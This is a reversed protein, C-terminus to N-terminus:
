HVLFHPCVVHELSRNIGNFIFYLAFIHHEILHIKFEDLQFSVQLRPYALFLDLLHDRPTSKAPLRLTLQGKDRTFFCLARPTFCLAYPMSCLTRFEFHEQERGKVVLSLAAHHGLSPSAKHSLDRCLVSQARSWARHTGGLARM